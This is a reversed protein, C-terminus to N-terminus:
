LVQALSYKRKGIETNLMSVFVLALLHQRESFLQQKGVVEQKHLIPIGSQGAM